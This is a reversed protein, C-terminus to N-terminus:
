QNHRALRTIVCSQIASQRAVITLGQPLGSACAAALIVVQNISSVANATQEQGRRYCAGTPQTCDEITRLTARNDKAREATQVSIYATIALSCTVVSAVFVLYARSAMEARTKKRDATAILDDEHTM